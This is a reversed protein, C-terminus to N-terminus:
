LYHSLTEKASEVPYEDVLQGQVIIRQTAEMDTCTVLTILNKGPVDDIVYGAEPSVVYIDTIKYQYVTKNHIVYINNAVKVRHLPTFLMNDSNYGGFVSHSALAYNGEGLKQESKMTGAGIMLNENTLGVFVPLNMGVSPIVLKAHPQLGSFSSNMASELVDTSQLSTINDPNFLAEDHKIDTYSDSQKLVTVPVNDYLDDSIRNVFLNAISQNFILALGITLLVLTILFKLLKWM